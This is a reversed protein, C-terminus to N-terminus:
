SRCSHSAGWWCRRTVFKDVAEENPFERDAAAALAPHLPQPSPTRPAPTHPQAVAATSSPLLSPPIPALGSPAVEGGGMIKSKVPPAKEPPIPVLGTLAVQGGGTLESESKEADKEEQKREM